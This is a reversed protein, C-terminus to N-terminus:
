TNIRSCIVAVKIRSAATLRRNDTATHTARHASTGSTQLRTKRNKIEEYGWLLSKHNSRGSLESVISLFFILLDVTAFGGLQQWQKGEKLSSEEELRGEM